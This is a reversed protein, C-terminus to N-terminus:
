TPVTGGSSHDTFSWIQARWAASNVPALTQIAIPNGVVTATIGLTTNPITMTFFQFGNPNGSPFVPTLQLSVPYEELFVTSGSAGTTYM